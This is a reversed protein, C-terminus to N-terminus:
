FHLVPFPKLRLFTALWNYPLTTLIRNYEQALSNYNESHVSFDNETTLIAENPDMNVSACSHLSSHIATALRLTRLTNKERKYQALLYETEPSLRHTQQDFTEVAATWKDLYPTIKKGQRKAMFAIRDLRNYFHIGLIMAFCLLLILIYGISM